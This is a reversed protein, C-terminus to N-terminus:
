GDDGAKIKIIRGPTKSFFFRGDKDAPTLWVLYNKKVVVNWDLHEVKFYVPMTGRPTAWAQNAAKGSPPPLDSTKKEFPEGVSQSYADATVIVYYYITGNSLNRHTFSTTNGYLSALLTYDNTPGTSNYYIYYYGGAMVNIDDWSWNGKSKSWNLTVQGDGALAQVTEPVSPKSNFNNFVYLSEGASLDPVLLIRRADGADTVSGYWAQNTYQITDPDKSTPIWGTSPPQDYYTYNEPLGGPANTSTRAMFVFNYYQGPTLDMKVQYTGDGVPTMNTVFSRTEWASINLSPQIVLYKELKGWNTHARQAMLTNIVLVVM